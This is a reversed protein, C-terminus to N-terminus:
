LFEHPEKIFLYKSQNKNMIYYTSIPDDINGPATFSERPM